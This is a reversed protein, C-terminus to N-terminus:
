TSCPETRLAPPTTGNAAEVLRESESPSLTRPLKRVRRPTELAAAPNDDRAGLLQEHRFYSRVAAIRRGITSPALGAARMSAVWAELSAATATAVPARLFAALAALDRRYADLTRPSRQAALLLLYREVGHDTIPSGNGHPPGSEARGVDNRRGHTVATTSGARAAPTSMCYIEDDLRSHGLLEQITRPRRRGRPHTAHRPPRHPNHMLRRLHSTDLPRGCGLPLARGRRRPCFPRAEHTGASRRPPESESPVVREKGGKGLVHVAEQEFDVDALRLGVVEATRLGCSYTLELMAANRMALPGDGEVTALITEVEALKPADPLRRRRKPPLAIAPVRAAGLTFGIYSRV